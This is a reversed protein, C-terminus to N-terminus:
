PSHIGGLLICAVRALLEPLMAAYRSDKELWMPLFCNFKEIRRHVFRAFELREDLGTPVAITLKVLLNEIKDKCLKIADSGVTEILNIEPLFYHYIAGKQLGDVLKALLMQVSVELSEWVPDTPPYEECFWLMTTKMVYSYLSKKKPERSEISKLHQYFIIKFFYYALQQDQSRLKALSVEPISFSLRWESKSDGGLSSRPVAQCGDDVIHQIDDQLPWLRSRTIWDTAQQPWFNLRVSPVQDLSFYITLSVNADKFVFKQEATTETNKTDVEIVTIHQGYFITFMIQLHGTDIKRVQENMINKFIMPSIFKTQPHEYKLKNEPNQMWNHDPLKAFYKLYLPDFLFRVFGPKGEVCEMATSEDSPINACTHMLDGEFEKWDEEQQFILCNICSILSRSM